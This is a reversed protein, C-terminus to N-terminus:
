SQFKHLRFRQLKPLLMLFLSFWFFYVFLLVYCVFLCICLSLIYMQNCEIAEAKASDDFVITAEDIFYFHIVYLLKVYSNYNPHSIVHISCVCVCYSILKKWVCRLVLHFSIPGFHTFDSAFVLLFFCEYALARNSNLSFM